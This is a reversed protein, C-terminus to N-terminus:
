VTFTDRGRVQVCLSFSICSAVGKGDGVLTVKAFHSKFVQHNESGLVLSGEAAQGGIVNGCIHRFTGWSSTDTCSEPDGVVAALGVFIHDAVIALDSVNLRSRARKRRGLSWDKALVVRACAGLTGLAYDHEVLEFPVVNFEFTRLLISLRPAGSVILLSAKRVARLIIDEYLSVVGRFGALSNPPM